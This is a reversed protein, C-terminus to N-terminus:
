EIKKSLPDLDAGSLERMKELVEGLPEMLMVRCSGITVPHFLRGGDSEEVLNLFDNFFTKVLEKLEDKNQEM